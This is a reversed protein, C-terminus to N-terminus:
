MVQSGFMVHLCVSEESKEVGTEVKYQSQLSAYELADIEEERLVDQLTKPSLKRMRVVRSQHPRM